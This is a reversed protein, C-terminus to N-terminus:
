GCCLAAQIKQWTSRKNETPSGRDQTNMGQPQDHPSVPGTTPPLNTQSTQFQAQTSATPTNAAGPQLGGAPGNPRKTPLAGPANQREGRKVAMQKGQSPPPPHPANLRGSTLQPNQRVGQAPPMDRIAGATTAHGPNQAHHYGHSSNHKSSIAEWGKGNNLKM